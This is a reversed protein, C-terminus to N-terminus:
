MVRGAGGGDAAQAPPRAFQPRGLEKEEEGGVCWMANAGFCSMSPWCCHPRRFLLLLLLSAALPVCQPLSSTTRRTLLLLLCLHMPMLASARSVGLLAAGLIMTRTCADASAAPRPTQRRRGQQKVAAAAETSVGRGVGAQLHHAHAPAAALGHVADRLAVGVGPLQVPHHQVGVLLDTGGSATSYLQEVGSQWRWWGEGGGGSQRIPGASCGM